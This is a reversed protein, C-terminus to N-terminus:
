YRINIKQCIIIYIYINNSKFPNYGIFTQYQPYM